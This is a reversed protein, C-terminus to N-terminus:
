VYEGWAYAVYGRLALSLRHSLRVPTPKVAERLLRHRYRFNVKGIWVEVGDDDTYTVNCKPPVVKRIRGTNPSM